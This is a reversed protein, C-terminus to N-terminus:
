FSPIIMSRVKLTTKGGERRNKKRKKYLTQFYVEELKVAAGDKLYIM